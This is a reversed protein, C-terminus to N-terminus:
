VFLCVFSSGFTKSTKTHTKINSKIEDMFHFILINIEHSRWKYFVHVIYIKESSRKYFGYEVFNNSYGRLIHQLEQDIKYLRTTKESLSSLTLFIVNIPCHRKRFEIKFVCIPRNFFFSVM